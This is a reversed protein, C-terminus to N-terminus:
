TTHNGLYEGLIGLKGKKYQWTIRLYDKPIGELIGLPLNLNSVFSIAWHTTEYVHRQM